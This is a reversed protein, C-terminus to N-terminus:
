GGQHETAVGNPNRPVSGCWESGDYMVPFYVYDNTWLTFPKGEELGYGDDFNHNLEEESLTSSVVNAFSDGNSEMEIQISKKWNM